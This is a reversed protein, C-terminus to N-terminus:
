FITSMNAERKTESIYQGRKKTKLEDNGLLSIRRIIDIIMQSESNFDVGGRIGFAFSNDTEGSNRFPIKEFFTKMLQEDKLTHFIFHFFSLWDSETILIRTKVRWGERWLILQLWKLFALNEEGIIDFEIYL